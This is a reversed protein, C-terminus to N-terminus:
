ISYDPSDEMFHQMALLNLFQDTADQLEAGMEEDSPLVYPNPDLHVHSVLWFLIEGQAGSSSGSLTEGAGGRRKVLRAQQKTLDKRALAFPGNRGWLVELDDFESASHGYAEASAPITLYKTPQGTATSENVGPEVDGGFYHLAVGPHAITITAGDDDVKVSTDKAAQGWYNSKAAGLPNVVTANRDALHQRVVTFARRGLARGLRRMGGAGAGLEELVDSLRAYDAEDVIAQFAVSM